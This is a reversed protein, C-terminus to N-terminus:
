QRGDDGGEAQILQDPLSLSETDGFSKRLSRLARAILHKVAYASRNMRRAIEEVKLRDIQSYRLAERYDPPLSAIAKELRDHREGRRMARSPSAGSAPLRDPLELYRRRRSDKARDISVNMAIRSLWAFFSAEDKWEFRGISEFALVFTEQVVEDVDAAGGAPRGQREVSSRLRAEFNRVLEDFSPRDGTRAKEVLSQIRSPEIMAGMM